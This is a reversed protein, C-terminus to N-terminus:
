SVPVAFATLSVALKFFPGRPRHGDAILARFAIGRRKEESFGRTSEAFIV